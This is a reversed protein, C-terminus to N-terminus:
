VNGERYSYPYYSYLPESDSFNLFLELIIYPELKMLMEIKKANSNYCQKYILRQEVSVINIIRNWKQKAKHHLLDNLLSMVVNRENEPM